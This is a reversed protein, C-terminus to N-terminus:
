LSRTDFFETRALAVEERVARREPTSEARNERARAMRDSLIDEVVPEPAMERFKKWYYVPPKWKKGDMVAVDNPFVDKGFREYWWFGIGPRNSQEHFEPRVSTVEGTWGDIREYRTATARQKKNVYGAVYSARAPTLAGITVNGLKWTDELRESHYDGNMWCVQDKMWANFLVMHWHPRAGLMPAGYEGAVFFRLPHNGLPGPSVGRCWKRLRKMFDQIHDYQLSPHLSRGYWSEHRSDDYTLTLFLSSDYLMAEHQIRISWM